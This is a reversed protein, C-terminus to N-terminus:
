QKLPFLSQYRSDSTILGSLLKSPQICFLTSILYHFVLQSSPLPSGPPRPTLSVPQSLTM